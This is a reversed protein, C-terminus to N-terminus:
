VNELTGSSRFHDVFVCIVGHVSVKLAYSFIDITKSSRKQEKMKKGTWGYIKVRGYENKRTWIIPPRTEVYLQPFLQMM